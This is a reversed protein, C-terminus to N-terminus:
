ADPEAPAVWAEDRPHSFATGNGRGFLGPALEEKARKPPREPLGSAADPVPQSSRRSPYIFLEFFALGVKVVGTVGRQLM